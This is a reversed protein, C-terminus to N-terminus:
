DARRAMKNALISILGGLALYGVVVELIVLAQAAPSAPLIHIPIVPLM